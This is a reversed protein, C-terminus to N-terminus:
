QISEAMRRLDEVSMDPNNTFLTYVLDGQRWILSLQSADPNWEGAELDWSGRILVATQHNVKVQELSGVPVPRSESYLDSQQILLSLDADRNSWSLIVWSYDSAHGVGDQFVFGDPVWTPISIRFPVLSRIEDLQASNVAYVTVQLPDLPEVKDSVDFWLGGLNQIVDLIAARATPLVTLALTLVIFLVSFRRALRRPALRNYQANNVPKSIRKYLEVAFKPRPRKRFRALFEDNM